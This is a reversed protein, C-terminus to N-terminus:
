MCHAYDFLVVCAHATTCVPLTLVVSCTHCCCNWFPETHICYSHALQGEIKRMNIAIDGYRLINYIRLELYTYSYNRLERLYMRACVWVAAARKCYHNSHPRNVQLMYMGCPQSKSPVLPQKEHLTTRLELYTYSYNRLARLYVRACM